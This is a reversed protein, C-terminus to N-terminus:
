HTRRHLARRNLAGARSHPQKCQMGEAATSNTEFRGTVSHPQRAATSTPWVHDGQQQAPLSWGSPTPTKASKSKSHQAGQPQQSHPKAQQWPTTERAAALKNGAQAASHLRPRTAQRVCTEEAAAAEAAAPVGPRLCAAAPTNPQCCILDSISLWMNTDWNERWITPGAPKLTCQKQNRRRQEGGEREKQPEVLQQMTGYASHPSTHTHTHTHTHTPQTYSLVCITTVTYAQAFLLSSVHKSQTHTHTHTHTSPKLQKKAKPHSVEGMVKHSTYGWGALHTSQMLTHMCSSAAAHSLGTRQRQRGARSQLRELTPAQLAPRPKQAAAAAFAAGAERRHANQAVQITPAHARKASSPCAPALWKDTVREKAPPCSPLQTISKGATKHHLTPCHYSLM